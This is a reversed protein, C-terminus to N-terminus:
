SPSTSGSARGSPVRGPSIVASRPAAGAGIDSPKSIEANHCPRGVTGGGGVPPRGFDTSVKPGTGHCPRSVTGCRAKGWALNVQGTLKGAAPCWKRTGRGTKGFFPAQQLLPVRNYKRPREASRLAWSTPLTHARRGPGTGM